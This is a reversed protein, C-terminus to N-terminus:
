SIRRRILSALSRQEGVDFAGDPWDVTNAHPLAGHMGLEDSLESVRRYDAADIVVPLGRQGAYRSTVSRRSM